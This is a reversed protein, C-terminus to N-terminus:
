EYKIRKNMTYYISQKEEDPQQKVEESAESWESLMTESCAQCLKGELIEKGCAECPYTLLQFQSARLRNQKLFKIIVDEEVETAEVIQELSAQRNKRTQLFNYVTQFSAEEARYCTPCLEIVNRAFVAGCNSCNTLEMKM